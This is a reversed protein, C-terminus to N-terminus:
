SDTFIWYHRVTLNSEKIWKIVQSIAYLEADIIDQTHDLYHSETVTNSDYICYIDAGLRFQESQSTLKIKSEDTYFIPIKQKMLQKIQTFHRKVINERNEEETINVKIVELVSKEWLASNESQVLINIENLILTSITNLMKILQTSHKQTRFNQNWNLYNLEISIKQEIENESSFSLLTRQKISHNESLTIVRLAYKRCKKNLRVRVSEINAKLKM